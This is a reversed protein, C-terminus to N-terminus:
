KLLMLLMVLPTRAQISHKLGALMHVWTGVKAEHRNDGLTM